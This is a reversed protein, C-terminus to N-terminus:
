NKSSLPCNGESEPRFADEPQIIRQVNLLDYPGKSEEPKKVELFLM